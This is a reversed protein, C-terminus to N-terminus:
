QNLIKILLGYKLLHFRQILPKQFYLLKLHSIYYIDWKFLLQGFFKQDPVLTWLFRSKYQYNNYIINHHVLVLVAEMIKLHPMIKVAELLKM